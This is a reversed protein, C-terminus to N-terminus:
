CVILLSRRFPCFHPKGQEMKKGLPSDQGTSILPDISGDQSHTTTVEQFHTEEMEILTSYTTSAVAKHTAINSQNASANASSSSSTNTTPTTFSVHQDHRIMVSEQSQVADLQNSEGATSDLWFTGGDVLYYLENFIMHKYYARDQRNSAKSSTSPTTTHKKRDDDTSGSGEHAAEMKALTEGQWANIRAQWDDVHQLAYCALNSASTGSKGFFRSYYKPLAHGSGFRALPFDWALAFKFGVRHKTKVSCVQSVCIAAAVECQLPLQSPLYQTMDDIHGQSHFAHWLNRASETLDMEEDDEEKKEDKECFGFLPQTNRKPAKSIFKPCYSVKTSTAQSPVSTAIAYSGEDTVKHSRHLSNEVCQMFAFTSSSTMSTSEDHEHYTKTKRSTMEIGTISVDETATASASKSESGDGEKGEEVGKEGQFKYHYCQNVDDYDHTEYGNQFVFMISVQIDSQTSKQPHTDEVDVEFVGVPLSAESYSHPLFPSIQKLTVKCHPIPNDFVTWAYPFLAHYEACHPSLSWDWCNVCFTSKEDGKSNPPLTSLVKSFIEKGRQIRLVFCDTPINQHIYRGPHISWRRFDGRFGRGISGGGVGGLPVGAHPGPNPPALTIGRLDFIPEKDHALEHQIYSGVRYAVPLLSLAELAPPRSYTHIRDSPDKADFRRRWTDQPIDTTSSM